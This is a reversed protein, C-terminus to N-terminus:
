WFLTWIRDFEYKEGKRVEIINLDGFKYFKKPTKRAFCKICTFRM